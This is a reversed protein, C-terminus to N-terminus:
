AALGAAFVGPDHKVLLAKARELLDADSLNFKCLVERWPCTVLSGTEAAAHAMADAVCLVLADRRHLPSHMPAHHWNVPETLDAPLNWAGMVMSGVVGHEIGWYEDEAESYSISGGEALASIARWDEPRHLATLLKGLDHLVGATFLNDPDGGGMLPALMRAVIAVSLQHEWYPGVPFDRPFDKSDTLAKVGVALVLTRVEALGLVAIARAVTNVEQQLGYFASNAVTLVKATLGQDRGLTEAIEDLPTVSTQGTQSYLTTLLAPSYPLNHRMGPLDLLFRQGIEHSM